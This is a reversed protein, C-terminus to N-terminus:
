KVSKEIQKLLDTHTTTSYGLIEYSGHPVSAWHNNPNPTLWDQKGPFDEAPGFISLEFCRPVLNKYGSYDELPCIQLCLDGASFNTSAANMKMPEWNNFPNGPWEAVYGNDMLISPDTAAARQDFVYATAGLFVLAQDMYTSIEATTWEAQPKAQLAAKADHLQQIVGAQQALLEDANDSYNSAWVSSSLSLIIALLLLVRHLM